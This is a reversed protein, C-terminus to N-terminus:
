LVLIAHTSFEVVLDLLCEVVVALHGYCLQTVEYFLERGLELDADRDGHVFVGEVLM